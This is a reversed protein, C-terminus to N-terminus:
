LVWYSLSPVPFTGLSKAHRVLDEQWQRGLSTRM